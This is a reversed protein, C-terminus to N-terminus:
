KQLLANVANEEFCRVEEFYGMVTKVDKWRGQKMVAPISAGKKIASTVFGRRL